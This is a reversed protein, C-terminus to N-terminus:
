KQAYYSNDEDSYSHSITLIAMRWCWIQQNEIKRWSIFPSWLCLGLNVSHEARYAAIPFDEDKPTVTQWSWNPIVWVGIVQWGRVWARYAWCGWSTELNSKQLITSPLQHDSFLPCVSTQLERLFSIECYHRKNLYEFLVSKFMFEKESHLIRRHIYHHAFLLVAM